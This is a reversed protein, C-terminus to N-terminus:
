GFSKFEVHGFCQKNLPALNEGEARRRNTGFVEAVQLGPAPSQSESAINRMGYLHM